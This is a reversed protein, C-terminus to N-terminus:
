RYLRDTRLDFWAPSADVTRGPQVASGATGPRGRFAAIEVVYDGQPGLSHIILARLGSRPLWSTGRCPFGRYLAHVAQPRAQPCRTATPSRPEPCSGLPACRQAVYVQGFCPCSCEVAQGLHAQLRALEGPELERPREAQHLVRREDRRGVREDLVLQLGPQAREDGEREGPFEAPGDLYRDGDVRARHRGGSCCDAGSLEGSDTTPPGSDGGM